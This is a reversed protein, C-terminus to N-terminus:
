MLSALAVQNFPNILSGLSCFMQFLTFIFGRKIIQVLDCTIFLGGLPLKSSCFSILNYVNSINLNIKSDFFLCNALYFISKTLKFVAFMEHPTKWDPTTSITALCTAKSLELQHCLVELLMSCLLIFTPDSENSNLYHWQKIEKQTICVCCFTM